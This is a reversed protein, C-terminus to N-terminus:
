AQPSDRNRSRRFRPSTCSARPKSSRAILVCGSAPALGGAHLVPLDVPRRLAARLNVLSVLAPVVADNGLEREEDGARLIAASDVVEVSIAEVPRDHHDELLRLRSFTSNVIECLPESNSSFSFVYGIARYHIPDMGAAKHSRAEARHIASVTPYAADVDDPFSSRPENTWDM